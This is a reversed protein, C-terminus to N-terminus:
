TLAPELEAQQEDAVEVPKPGSRSSRPEGEKKPKSARVRKEKPPANPDVEKAPRGRRGPEGKFKNKETLKPHMAKLSEFDPTEGGFGARNWREGNLFRAYVHPATMKVVSGEKVFKFKEEEYEGDSTEIPIFRLIEKLNNPYQEPSNLYVLVESGTTGELQMLYVDRAEVSFKSM